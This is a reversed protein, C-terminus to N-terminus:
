CMALFDSTQMACAMVGPLARVDTSISSRTRTEDQSSPMVSASTASTGTTCWLMKSSKQTKNRRFIPFRVEFLQGGFQAIESDADVFVEDPQGIYEIWFSNSDFWNWKLDSIHVMPLKPTHRAGVVELDGGAVGDGEEVVQEGDNGSVDDSGRGPATSQHNDDAARQDDGRANSSSGEAGEGGTGGVEEAGGDIDEEEEDIAGTARRFARTAEILADEAPIKALEEDSYAQRNGKADWPSVNRLAEAKSKKWSHHHNDRLNSTKKMGQEPHREHQIEAAWKEDIIGDPNHKKDYVYKEFIRM